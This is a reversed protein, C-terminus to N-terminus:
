KLTKLLHVHFTSGGNWYFPDVINAFAHPDRTHAFLQRNKWPFVFDVVAMGNGQCLLQDHEGHM